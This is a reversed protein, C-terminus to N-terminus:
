FRALFSVTLDLRTYIFGKRGVRSAWLTVVVAVAAVKRLFPPARMERGMM